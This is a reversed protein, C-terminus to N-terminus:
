VPRCSALEGNQLSSSPTEMIEKAMRTVADGVLWDVIQTHEYDEYSFRCAACSRPSMFSVSKQQLLNKHHGRVRDEVGQLCVPDTGYTLGALARLRCRSRHSLRHSLPTVWTSLKSGSANRPIDDHDTTTCGVLQSHPM